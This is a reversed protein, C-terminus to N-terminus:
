QSFCMEMVITHIARTRLSSVVLVNNFAVLSENTMIRCPEIWHM